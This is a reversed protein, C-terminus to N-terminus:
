SLIKVYDKTVLAYLITSIYTFYEMKKDTVSM